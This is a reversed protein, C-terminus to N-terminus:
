YEFSDSITFFLKDRLCNTAETVAPAPVSSIPFIASADGGPIDGAKKSGKLV